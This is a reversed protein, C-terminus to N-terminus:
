VDDEEGNFGRTTSGYEIYCLWNMFEKDNEVIGEFESEIRKKMLLVDMLNPIDKNGWYYESKTVKWKIM